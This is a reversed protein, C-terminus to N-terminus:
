VQHGLSTREECYFVLLSFWAVFLFSSSDVDYLMVDLVNRYNLKIVILLNIISLKVFLWILIFLLRDFLVFFSFTLNVLLLIFM